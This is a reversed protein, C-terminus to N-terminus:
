IQPPIKKILFDVAILHFTKGYMEMIYIQIIIIIMIEPVRYHLCKKLIPDKTCLIYNNSLAQNPIYCKQFQWLVIKIKKSFPLNMIVDIKKKVIQFNRM